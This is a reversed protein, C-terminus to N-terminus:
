YDKFQELKRHTKDKNSEQWAKLDVISIKSQKWEDGTLKPMKLFSIDYILYDSRLQYAKSGKIPEKISWLWGKHNSLSLWGDTFLDADPLDKLWHRPDYKSVLCIEEDTFTGDLNVLYHYARDDNNYGSVVADNEGIILLKFKDGSGDVFEDGINGMNLDIM